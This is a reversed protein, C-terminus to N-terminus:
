IANIKIPLRNNVNNIIIEIKPFKYQPHQFDITYNGSEWVKNTLFYENPGTKNAYVIKM